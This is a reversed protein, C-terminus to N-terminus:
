PAQDPPLVQVIIGWVERGGVLVGGGEVEEVSKARKCWVYRSRCNSGVCLCRCVGRDGVGSFTNAEEV